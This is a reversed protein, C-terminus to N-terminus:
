ARGLGAWFGVWQIFVKGFVPSVQCLWVLPAYVVHFANVFETSDTASDARSAIWFAPGTSTVYLVVVVAVVTAWFAVGPKKRDTSM